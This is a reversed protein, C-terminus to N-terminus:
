WAAPKTFIGQADQLTHPFQSAAIFNPRLHKYFNANAKLVVCERQQPNFVGVIKNLEYRVMEVPMLLDSDGSVVVACDFRNLHADHLLQVALNVDSGKEETKVVEVTPSQGPAPNALRMKVKKTLFHGFTVEFYPLTALARLYMEQRAPADPDTPRPNVKATFYKIGVLQNHPKLHLEILRQLDLWRHPTGKLAGFYLNFGDVYAIARM